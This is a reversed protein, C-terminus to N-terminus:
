YVIMKYKFVQKMMLQQLLEESKMFLTESLSYDGNTTSVVSCCFLVSYDIKTDVIMTQTVSTKSNETASTTPTLFSM